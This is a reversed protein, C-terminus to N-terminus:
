LPQEESEPSTARRWAEDLGQSLAGNVVSDEGLASVTIEPMVPAMTEVRQEVATVFGPEQGIGGGMVILEPDVVVILTTLVRAVLDAEEAVVRAVVANGDHPGAFVAETTHQGALAPEARERVGPV